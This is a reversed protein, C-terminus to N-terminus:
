SLLGQWYYITNRVALLAWCVFWLTISAGVIAAMVKYAGGVSFMESQKMSSYSRCINVVSM